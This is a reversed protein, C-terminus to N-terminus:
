ASPRSTATSTRGARYTFDRRQLQRQATPSPGTVPFTLAGASTGSVSYGPDGPWDYRQHCARPPSSPGGVADEAVAHGDASAIVTSASATVDLLARMGGGPVGATTLHLSRDWIAYTAATESTFLADVTKGAPLFVVYQERPYPYPKGDEAILKLHAGEIQM